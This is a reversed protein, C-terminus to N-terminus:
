RRDSQYQEEELFPVSATKWVVDNEPGESVMVQGFTGPDGKAADDGSVRIESRLQLSGNIDLSTQPDATEIGVQSYAFCSLLLAILHLNKM